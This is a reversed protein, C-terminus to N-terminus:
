DIVEYQNMFKELVLRVQYGKERYPPINKRMIDCLNKENECLWVFSDRIENQEMLNKYNIVAREPLGIDKAIGVSKISYGLALSPVMCSYASIMSHTRAGIFFRCKSILYRIQCYNLSDTELVRVRKSGEFFSAFYKCVKRDDQEPWFVHPILAINYDTENIIYNILNYINKGIMTDMSVNAGVFNSLNIGVISKEEFWGDVDIYEPELVFAPDPYCAVNKLGLKNRLLDETLSERAIILEYKQLASQKMATLNEEGISCGFLVSPIKGGLYEQLYITSNDDYCFMDGGTSFYIGYKDKKVDNLFYQYDEKVTLFLRSKSDFILNRLVRFYLKRIRSSSKCSTIRIKKHVSNIRYDLSLDRSYINVVHREDIIELLGRTIAECGRNGFDYNTPLYIM